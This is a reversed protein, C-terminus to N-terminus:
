RAIIRKGLSYVKGLAIKGEYRSRNQMGFRFHRISGNGESWAERLRAERYM